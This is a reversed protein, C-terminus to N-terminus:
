LSDMLSPGISKIPFPSKWWSFKLVLGMGGDIMAETVNQGLHWEAFMDGRFRNRGPWDISNSMLFHFSQPYLDLANGTASM